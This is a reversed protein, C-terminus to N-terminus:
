REISDWASSDRLCEHFHHFWGCDVGMSASPSSRSLCLLDWPSKPGFGQECYAFATNSESHEAVIWCPFIQGKEGYDWGRQECRPFVLLVRVADGQAPDSFRLLELEVLVAINSATNM